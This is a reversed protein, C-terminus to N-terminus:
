NRTADKDDKAASLSARTNLYNLRMSKKMREGLEEVLEVNWEDNQHHGIVGGLTAAIIIALHPPQIGVSMGGAAMDRILEVLIQETETTERVVTDEKKM